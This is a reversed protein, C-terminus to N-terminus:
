DLTNELTEAFRRMWHFCTARLLCVGLHPKTNLLNEVAYASFELVSADEIAVAREFASCNAVVPLGGFLERPGIRSIWQNFRGQAPELMASGDLLVCVASSEPEEGGRYIMEGPPVKRRRTALALEVSEEFSLQDLGACSSLFLGLERARMQILDWLADRQAEDISEFVLGIAPAGNGGLDTSWRSSVQLSIKEHGTSFRVARVTESDIISTTQVCMGGLGIDVSYAPIGVRGTSDLLLEVPITAAVRISARRSPHAKIPKVAILPYASALSM